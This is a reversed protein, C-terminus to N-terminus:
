PALPIPSNSRSLFFRVVEDTLLPLPRLRIV